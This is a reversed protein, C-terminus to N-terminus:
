RRTLSEFLRLYERASADWSFNKAMGARVMREWRVRDGWAELARDVAWILGDPTAHDFRFGTVGHDVTDALGGTTRVIPVTGYRLAYIQTLGCPEYRSPVMLMDCGAIIQHAFENDFAVHVSARGRLRSGLWQLGDQYGRDGTGLVVLQLDRAAFADAADLLLDVGKQEVLRGVMGIVPVDARLPLGCRRQLAEKCTGKGGLSGASYPAALHLDLEPSWEAYDVGNLIGRLVGARDRLVGDLGHGYEATQIERAYTPSVTTLADAHVLGAKLFNLDDHYELERWTFRDWGFGTVPLDVKWFRGQYALNHVTLVTKTKPFAAAYLSKVYLPVLGAQWDHVHIIDPVIKRICLLELAGRCLFVFRAVNDAYDGHGDGYLGPRDFFFDHELFHFNGSRRVAGWASGPGLPVTILEPCKDLPHKQVSRHLPSVVLVEAGIKELAGPLAGTVDALGGSKSFPVAESAIIVVKM